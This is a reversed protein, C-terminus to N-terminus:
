SLVVVEAYPDSKTTSLEVSELRRHQPDDMRSWLMVTADPPMASLQDILESVTMEAAKERTPLNSTKGVPVSCAGVSCAGFSNANLVGPPMSMGRSNISGSANHALVDWLVFAALIILLVALTIAFVFVWTSFELV